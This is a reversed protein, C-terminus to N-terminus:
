IVKECFTRAVRWSKSDSFWYVQVGLPVAKDPNLVESSLFGLRRSPFNGVCCEVWCIAMREAIYGVFWPHIKDSVGDGIGILHEM